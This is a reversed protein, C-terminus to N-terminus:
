EYVERLGLYAVYSFGVVCSTLFFIPGYTQQWLAVGIGAVAYLALFIELGIIWDFTFRYHFRRAQQATQGNVYHPNRGNLGIGKPTRVFVHHRQWFIQLIARVNNPGIGLAVILLAPLYHLRQRWNPYLVYQSMAFLLPQAVAAVSFIMMNRSFTQGAYILPIQLLLLLLALFQAMYGSMALLAYGRALWSQERAGVIDRGFKFLCQLSGKAWRAQQSKYATITSPLEAPTVVDNLFRFQWGRLIARTSLCLDECVTDDEWGGANELCARRWVGGAGNFKPFLNARHRVTQEMAFHKDLAIAQAATLLSQNHNFHGWRTQVMGLREDAIFHPITRQLFSPDPCFDADFLALFEGKAYPMAAALAGAKYGQRNTRHRLEIDFGQQRYHAVLEAARRTTDDTSDDIVQIQLQDRPYDLDTAARLLRDIVYRENFTPLQITVPPLDATEVTPLPYTVHRYRWYLVLTLLGLLGYLSLIILTLWYITVLIDAM